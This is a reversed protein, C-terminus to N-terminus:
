VKNIVQNSELLFPYFKLVTVIIEKSNKTKLRLNQKNQVSIYGEILIYDNIHCYIKASSGLNGWFTLTIIKNKGKQSIEGRFKIMSIKDNLFIKKPNELVKIIGFFYNTNGM